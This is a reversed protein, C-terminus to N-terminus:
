SNEPLILNASCYAHKQVTGDELEASYTRRMPKGLSFEVPIRFMGGAYCVTHFEGNEGCPDVEEPLEAVFARDYERGVFREDLLAANTTVVVTRLGSAFFEEAVAKTDRGWLPEVVTIGCPALRRERYARVDELCIDGFIFHRVGLEKFRDVAESMAAEYEEMSGNAPLEVVELPLGISGAQRRLLWIPIGHMPSRRTDRSVTTLLSVVEYVGEQLIRYLALASDKGGSWNFVAPIKPDM